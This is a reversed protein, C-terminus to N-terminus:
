NGKRLQKKIKEINAKLPCEFNEPNDWDFLWCEECGCTKDRISSCLEKANNILEEIDATNVM